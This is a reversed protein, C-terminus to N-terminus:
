GLQKRAIVEDTYWDRVTSGASVRPEIMAIEDVRLPEQFIEGKGIAQNVESLLKKYDQYRAVFEPKDAFRLFTTHIIGTDIDPEINEKTKDKTEKVKFHFAPKEAKKDLLGQSIQRRMDFMGDGNEGPVWLVIGNPYFGNMRLTLPFSFIKDFIDLHDRYFARKDGTPKYAVAGTTGPSNRLLVGVAIHTRLNDYPFQNPLMRSIDHVITNYDRQSDHTRFLPIGTVISLSFPTVPTQILTAKEPDIDSIRGVVGPLREGYQKANDQYPTIVQM